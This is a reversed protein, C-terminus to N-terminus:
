FLVGGSDLQNARGGHDSDEQEQIVQSQGDWTNAWGVTLIVLIQM